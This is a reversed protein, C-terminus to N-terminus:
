CSMTGHTAVQVGNASCPAPPNCIGHNCCTGRCKGGRLLGNSGEVEQLIEFASVGNRSYPVWPPAQVLVELPMVKALEDQPLQPTSSAKTCIQM